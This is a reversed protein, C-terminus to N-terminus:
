SSLWYYIFKNIIINENESRISYCLPGLHFPRSQYGVFGIGGQGRSPTTVTDGPCNSNKAYGSNTTGANIYEFESYEELIENPKCGTHINAVDGLKYERFDCISSGHLIANRYY